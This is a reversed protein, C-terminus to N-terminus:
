RASAQLSVAVAVGYAVSKRYGLPDVNDKKGENM